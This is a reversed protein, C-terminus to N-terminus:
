KIHRISINTHSLCTVLFTEIQQRLYCAANILSPLNTQQQNLWNRLCLCTVSNVWWALLAVPYHCLWKAIINNDMKICKAKVRTLSQVRKYSCHVSGPQLLQRLRHLFLRLLEIHKLNCKGQVLIFSLNLCLIMTCLVQCIYTSTHLMHLTHHSSRWVQLWIATVNNHITCGHRQTSKVFHQAM